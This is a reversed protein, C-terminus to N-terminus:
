SPVSKLYDTGSYAIDTVSFAIEFESAEYHPELVFTRQFIIQDVHGEFIADEFKGSAFFTGALARESQISDCGREIKKNQRTEECSGTGVESSFARPNESGRQRRPTTPLVMFFAAKCGGKQHNTTPSNSAPPKV